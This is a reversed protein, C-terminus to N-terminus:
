EAGKKGNLIFNFAKEARGAAVIILSNDEAIRDRWHKLYATSNQFSDETELGLANVIYAAGIEAVLEERSYSDSGFSAQAADIDAFRDLRGVKGTSHICEHFVTSYYEATAAFQDIRPVTISDDGLRYFARSSLADRRMEIGERTLYDNLIKEADLNEAANNPLPADNHPEIGECDAINFVSWEKLYPISRDVKVGNERAERTNRILKGDKDYNLINWFVIKSSKAGKKVRGGLERVQNFTIYESPDGLIIQNLLSYPKRTVYSTALRPGGVWPKRWPVVGNDLNAIIREAVMSCIKKDM